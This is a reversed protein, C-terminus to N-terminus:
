TFSNHEKMLPESGEALNESSLGCGNDSRIGVSLNSQSIHQFVRIPWLPGEMLRDSQDAVLPSLFALASVQFKIRRGTRCAIYYSKLHFGPQFVYSRARPLQFSRASQFPDRTSIQSSHFSSDVLNTCAGSSSQTGVVSHRSIFLPTQHFARFSGSLSM